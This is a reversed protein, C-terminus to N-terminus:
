SEEPRLKGEVQRAWVNVIQPGHELWDEVQQLIVWRKRLENPDWVIPALLTDGDVGLVPCLFHQLSHAGFEGAGPDEDILRLNGIRFSKLDWDSQQLVALIDVSENTSERCRKISQTFISCSPLPKILKRYPGGIRQIAETM